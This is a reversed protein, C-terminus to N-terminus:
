CKRGLLLQLIQVANTAAGKRLNDSCTWLNLTRPNDRDPRVRGVLVEDLGDTVSPVPYKEGDLLVVGPAGALIKKVEGMDPPGEFEVNISVSHCNPVNVRVCTASVAIDAKGLIKKTENIMKEEERTNGWDEFVDIHPFLNDKIPYPFKPNSGAGSIAQYTSYVVRKIKYARDLPALAVVAGITSCNPNSIIRGAGIADPNVEPIVLPVNPNMRFHSSNDIVTAGAAVFVPAWQASLDAAVAMLVFDPMIEEIREASLVETMYTRGFIKVPKGAASAFLFYEARINREQLIKIMMGGVLGTAGVVAIRKVKSMLM